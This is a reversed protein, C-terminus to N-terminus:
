NLLNIEHYQSMNATYFDLRVKSINETGNFIINFVIQKSQSTGGSVILM